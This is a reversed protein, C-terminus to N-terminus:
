LDDEEEVRDWLLKSARRRTTDLAQAVGAEIGGRSMAAMIPLETASVEIERLLKAVEERERNVRAVFVAELFLATSEDSRGRRLMEKVDKLVQVGTLQTLDRKKQQISQYAM